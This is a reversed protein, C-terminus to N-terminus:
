PTEQHTSKEFQAFTPTITNVMAGGDIARMAVGDVAEYGRM